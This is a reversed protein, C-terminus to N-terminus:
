RQLPFRLWVHLIVIREDHRVPATFSPGNPLLELIPVPSGCATKGPTRLGSMRSRSRKFSRPQYYQIYNMSIFQNHRLQKRQCTTKRGVSWRMQIPGQSIAIHSRLVVAEPRKNLPLRYFESSFAGSPSIPCTSRCGEVITLRGQMHTEYHMGVLFSGTIRDYYWFNNGTSVFCM